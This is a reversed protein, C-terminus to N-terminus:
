YRNEIRWARCIKEEETSQMEERGGQEADRTEGGHEM